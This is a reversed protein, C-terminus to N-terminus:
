GLQKITAEFAAQNSTMVPCGLKDEIEQYVDMARFNTCSLFIGDYEGEHRSAKDLAFSVIDKPEVLGISHNHDIGLGYIGVVETGQAKLSSAIRDNLDKIYPTLVLLRQLGLEMAHKRVSQIVSVSKGKGVREITRCLEADYENGRLAGASTCGFVIVDPEVTALDYLAKPFHMDLMEEEGKVTTDFLYMRATHLTVDQPLNRYFDVEMVTNSSPVILGIRKGM